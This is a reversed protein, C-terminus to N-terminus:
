LRFLKSFLSQKKYNKIEYDESYNSLDYVSVDPLFEEIGSYGMSNIEIIDFGLKYFLKVVNRYKKNKYNFILLKPNYDEKDIMQFLRISNSFKDSIKITSQLENMKKSIIKKSSEKLVNLDLFSENNSNKFPSLVSLLDYRENSSDFKSSIIILNEENVKFLDKIQNDFEESKNIGNIKCVLQPIYKTNNAIRYGDREKIPKNWINFIDDFTTKIPITILDKIINNQTGYIENVQEEAIYANTKIESIIEKDPYNIIEQNNYEIINCYEELQGLPCSIDNQKTSIIIINMKLLNLLRTYYLKVKTIQGFFLLTSKDKINSYQKELSCLRSLVNILIDFSYNKVYHREYDTIINNLENLFEQDKDKNIIKLAKNIIFQKQTLDKIKFSNKLESAIQLELEQNIKLDNTEIYINQNDKLRVLTNLYDEKNDPIGKIYYMMSNKNNIFRSELLQKYDTYVTM